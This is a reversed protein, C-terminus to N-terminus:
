LDIRFCWQYHASNHFMLFFSWMRLLVSFTTRLASYIFIGFCVICSNWSGCLSLVHHPRLLGCGLHIIYGLDLTCGVDM